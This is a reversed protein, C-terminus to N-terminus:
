VHVDILWVFIHGPGASDIVREGIGFVRLFARLTCSSLM